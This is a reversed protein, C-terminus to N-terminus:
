RVPAHLLRCGASLDTLTVRRDVHEIALALLIVAIELMTLPTFVGALIALILAIVALLTDIGYGPGVRLITRRGRRSVQNRMKVHWSM